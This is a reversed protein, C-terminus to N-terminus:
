QKDADFTITDCSTLLGGDYFSIQAKKKKLVVNIFVGIKGGRDHISPATDSAAICMDLNFPPVRDTFLDGPSMQCLKQSIKIM